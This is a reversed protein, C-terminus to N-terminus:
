GEIMTHLIHLSAKKEAGSVIGPTRLNNFRITSRVCWNSGVRGAATPPACRGSPSSRISLIPSM